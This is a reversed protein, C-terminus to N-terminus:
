VLVAFSVPFSNGAFLLCLYYNCRSTCIVPQCRLKHANEAYGFPMILLLLCIVIINKIFMISCRDDVFQAASHISHCWRPLFELQLLKFLNSLIDADDCVSHDLFAAGTKNKRYSRYIYVLKLLKKVTRVLVKHCMFTLNRSGGWRYETVMRGLLVCLVALVSPLCSLM